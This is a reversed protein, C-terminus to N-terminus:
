AEAKKVSIRTSLLALAVMLVFLVSIFIFIYNWNGTSDIILGFLISQIAAGMYAAWDLIGTATGAFARTGFDAAFAWVLGNVASFFGAILLGISAATVTHLAPFIFISAAACLGCIILAPERKSRFVKDSIIPMLFYGLAMGVPLVVSSFLGSEVNMDMVEVYYLPIWTILGYRAIGVIAIIFMFLVFKPNKILLIYPYLKGKEKLIRMREAELEAADDNEEEYPALGVDKPKDKAMILFIVGFLIMPILPYRFAARWGDDPAIAFSALICLWAFIQALGSAGTIIGSSFGRKSSPWWNANLAIGPSFVM